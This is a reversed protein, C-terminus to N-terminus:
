CAAPTASQIPAAPASRPTSTLSPRIARARPRRGQAATGGDGPVLHRNRRRHHRARLRYRGASLLREARCCLALDHRRLDRAHRGAYGAQPAAGCRADARLCRADRCFDARFRAPRHKGEQASRPRAARARVADADPDLSVFGSIIIAMSITVAFERFVRGVMGGM